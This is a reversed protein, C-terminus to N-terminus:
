KQTMQLKDIFDRILLFSKDYHEDLRLNSPHDDVEHYFAYPGMLYFFFAPIGEESFFYHDSNAAKGRSKIQTLYQKEDNIRKLSEYESTFVQGNVAMIGEQGSGMLDMNVVFRIKSKEIWDDLEKVFFYSGVLGAEEGGFAIFVVSYRPPHKKYYEAMDLLMAIGSANDNAGPIYVDGMGGLHDYHGTFLIFSDPHETGPIYGIVNRGEQSKVLVADIRAEITTSSIFKEPLMLLHAFSKQDRATSWTLDNNLEILLDGKFNKIINQKQEQLLKDKPPITDLVLLKGKKSKKLARSVRKKSNYDALKIMITEGAGAYSGSAPHVVFDRGTHLQHQGISMSVIDPFTNVSLSFQHYDKGNLRDLGIRDMEQSIYESAKIAGNHTYGRGYFTESCLTDITQQAFSRNQADAAVFLFCSLALAGLQKTVSNMM